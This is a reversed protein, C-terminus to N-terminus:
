VAGGETAEKKLYKVLWPYKKIFDSQSIDENAYKEAFERENEADLATNIKEHRKEQKEKEEAIIQDGFLDGIETRAYDDKIAKVFFASFNKVLGAIKAKKTMEFNEKIRKESYDKSIKKAVKEAVGTKILLAIIPNLPEMLEKRAELPTDNNEIRFEMKQIEKRYVELPVMEVKINSKDNIEELAPYVCWEFISRTKKYKNQPISLIQRLKDTSCTVVKAGRWSLLFEYLPITYKGRLRMVTAVDIM